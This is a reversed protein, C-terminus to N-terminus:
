KRGSGSKRGGGDQKNVTAWAIREADDKSRGQERESQEIKEAQRKQKDTYASKDGRSM